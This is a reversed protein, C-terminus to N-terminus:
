ITATVYQVDGTVSQRGRIQLPSWCCCCRRSQLLLLLLLSSQSRQQKQKQQQKQLYQCDHFLHLLHYLLLLLVDQSQFSLHLLSDRSVLSFDRSQDFGM